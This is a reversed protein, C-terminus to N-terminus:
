ANGGQSPNHHAQFSLKSGKANLRTSHFPIVNGGREPAPAILVRDEPAARMYRVAAALLVLTCSVIMAACLGQLILLATSM